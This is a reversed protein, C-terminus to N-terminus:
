LALVQRELETFFREGLDTPRIFPKATNWASRVKETQREYLMHATKDGERWQALRRYYFAVNLFAHIGLILGWLPRLDQRWPSKHVRDPKCDEWLLDFRRMLNLRIHSMEHIILDGVTAPEDATLAVLGLLCNPSHSRTYGREELLVFGKAQRIAAAFATPWVDRLLDLGDRVRATARGIDAAACLGMDAFVSAVEPVANLVPVNRVEHVPYFRNRIGEIVEVGIDKPLTLAFGDLWAFEVRSRSEVVAVPGDECVLVLHFHPLYCSSIPIPVGAAAASHPSGILYRISSIARDLVPRPDKFDPDNLVDLPAPLPDFCIALQCPDMARLRNEIWDLWRRAQSGKKTKRRSIAVLMRARDALELALRPRLIDLSDSCPAPLCLGSIDDPVYSPGTM